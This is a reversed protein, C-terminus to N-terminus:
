VKGGMVSMSRTRRKKRWTRRCARSTRPSRAAPNVAAAMSAVPRNSPSVAEHIPGAAEQPVTVTRVKSVRRSEPKPRTQPKGARLSCGHPGHCHERASAVGGSAAIQQGGDLKVDAVVQGVM